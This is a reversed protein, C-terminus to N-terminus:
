SVRRSSLGVRIVDDADPHHTHWAILAWAVVCAALTGAVLFWFISPVGLSVILITGLVFILGGVNDSVDTSSFNIQPFLRRGPAPTPVVSPHHENWRHILLALVAVLAVFWGSLFRMALLTVVSAAIALRPMLAWSAFPAVLALRWFAAYGRWLARLRRARDSGAALVDSRLDAITPEVVTAIFPESFLVPAVRLLTTGPRRPADRQPKV